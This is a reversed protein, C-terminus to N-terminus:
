FFFFSHFITKIIYQSVHGSVRRRQMSVSVRFSSILTYVAERRICHLEDDRTGDHHGHVGTAHNSIRPFAPFFFYFFLFNTVRTAVVILLM